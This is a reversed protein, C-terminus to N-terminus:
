DTYTTYATYTDMLFVGVAQGLAYQQHALAQALLHSGDPLLLTYIFHSGRFVVQVVQAVQAIPIPPTTRPSAVTVDMLGVHEPRLLVRVEGSASLFHPHAPPLIGLATRWGQSGLSQAALLVGEGIFQAVEPTRPHAYVQVASDWQLLRGQAMVGIHDAIAFAENQDHTVMLATTQAQKLINRVERAISERLSTDLSSFPEDLLLLGPKPALARALAVRQQQGGSLQHPWSDGRGQLGVLALMEEVRPAREAAPWQHLGFAINGAVNLHPFLAHDQFVMGIDRKQPPLSAQPTAVTQGALVMSGGRVPEFGAIARLLTTKGCGSPGLLCGIEGKALHLQAAHVVHQDGYGLDVANVQLM